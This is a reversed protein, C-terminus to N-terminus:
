MPAYFPKMQNDNVVTRLYNGVAHMGSKGRRILHLQGEQDRCDEGFLIDFRRNFTEWLSDGTVTTMVEYIHDKRTAEPVSKPLIKTLAIIKDVLLELSILSDAM